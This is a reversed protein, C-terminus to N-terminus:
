FNVLLVLQGLFHLMSVKRRSLPSSFALTFHTLLWSILCLLSFIGFGKVDEPSSWGMYAERGASPERVVRSRHYKRLVKFADYTWGNDYGGRRCQPNCLNSPGIVAHHQAFSQTMGKMMDFGLKVACAHGQVLCVLLSYPKWDPMTGWWQTSASPDEAPVMDNFMGATSFMCASLSRGVGHSRGSAPINQWCRRREVCFPVCRSLIQPHAAIQRQCAGATARDDYRRTSQLQLLASSGLGPLFM